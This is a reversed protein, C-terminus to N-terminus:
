GGSGWLYDTIDAFGEFLVYPSGSARCHEALACNNKAFLLDAKQTVCRDTLGDGIYLIKKGTQRRITDICIKKCNGCPGIPETCVNSQTAFSPTLHAGNELLDNAFIQVGQIREEGLVHRIGQAYGGSVIFLPLGQGRLRRLFEDFGCDIHVYSDLFSYYKGFTMRSVEFHRVMAERDSTLGARFDKEIKANEPSGHTIFLLDNTDELTITGDFDSVVAYASLDLHKM